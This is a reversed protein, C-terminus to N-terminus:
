EIILVGWEVDKFEKLEEENQPFDIFDCDNWQFACARPVLAKLINDRTFNVM